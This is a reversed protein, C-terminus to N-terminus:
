KDKTKKMQFVYHIMKIIKYIIMKKKKLNKM